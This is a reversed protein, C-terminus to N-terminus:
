RFTAGTWCCLQDRGRIFHVVLRPNHRSGRCKLAVHPRNSMASGAYRCPALHCHARASRLTVNGAYEADLLGGANQISHRWEGQSVQHGGLAFPM